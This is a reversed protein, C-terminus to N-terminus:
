SGGKCSPTCGPDPAKHTGALVMSQDVPRGSTGGGVIDEDEELDGEGVEDYPPDEIHILIDNDYM